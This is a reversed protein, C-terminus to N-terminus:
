RRFIHPFNRRLFSKARQEQPKEKRDLKTLEDLSQRIEVTDFIEQEVRTRLQDIRKRLKITDLFILCPDYINGQRMSRLDNLLSAIEKHKTELFKETEHIYKKKLFELHRSVHSLERQLTQINEELTKGLENRYQDARFLPNFYDRKYFDCARIASIAEASLGSVVDQNSIGRMACVLRYVFALQERDLYGSKLQETVNYTGDIRAVQRTNEVECGNLLLKGLGLFVAAIDTLVENEYEHIPGTGVSIGNIQLYKHTIEHALTALVAICFRAINDSIEIFVEMQGYQLEVHGGVKEKQRVTAVIFTLGQLGIFEAIKKAADQIEIVDGTNLSWPELMQYKTKAGIQKELMILKKIYDEIFLRSM